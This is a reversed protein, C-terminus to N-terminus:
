PEKDGQQEPPKGSFKIFPFQRDDVLGFLGAGM